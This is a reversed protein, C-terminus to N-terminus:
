YKTWSGDSKVVLQIGRPMSEILADVVRDGGLALIFITKQKKIITLIKEMKKEKWPWTLLTRFEVDERV